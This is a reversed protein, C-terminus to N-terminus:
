KAQRNGPRNDQHRLLTALRQEFDTKRTTKIECEWFIIANWNLDRLADMVRGDRQSNRAIKATWYDRNTRPIRAGRRCNHGHWFCGHVFIAIRRSPLVIDPCGPLDRRHLRFRGGLAHLMRRVQIEPKTDRSPVAAMIRSRERSPRVVKHAM